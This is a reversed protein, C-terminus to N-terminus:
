YHVNLFKKAGLLLGIGGLIITATVYLAYDYSGSWDTLVVAYLPAIVQGIGYATTLAGM